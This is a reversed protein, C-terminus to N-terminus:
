SEISRGPGSVKETNPDVSAGLYIDRSPIPPPNGKALILTSSSDHSSRNLHHYVTWGILVALLSGVAILTVGILGLRRKRISLENHGQHQQM